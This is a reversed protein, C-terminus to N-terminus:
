RMKGMDDSTTPQPRAQSPNSPPTALSRGIDVVGLGVVGVLLVLAFTLQPSKTHRLALYYALAVVAFSLTFLWERMYVNMSLFIGIGGLISLWLPLKGYRLMGAVLFIISVILIPQFLVFGTYANLASVMSSQSFGLVGIIGLLLAPFM